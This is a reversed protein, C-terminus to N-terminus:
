RKEDLRISLDTFEPADPGGRGAITAGAPQSRTTGRCCGWERQSQWREGLVVLDIMRTEDRTEANVLVDVVPAKCWTPHDPFRGRDHGNFALSGVVGDVYKRLQSHPSKSVSRAGSASAAVGNRKRDWGSLELGDFTAHLIM